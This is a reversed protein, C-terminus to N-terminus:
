GSYVKEYDKSSFETPNNADYAYYATRGTVFHQLYGDESLTIEFAADGWGKRRLRDGPKFVEVPPEIKEVRVVGDRGVNISPSTSGDDYTVDFGQYSRAAYRVTVEFEKTVKIRDGAKIDSM